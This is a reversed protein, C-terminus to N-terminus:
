AVRSTTPPEGLEPGAIAVPTFGIPASAPAAFGLTECYRKRWGFLMSRSINHWCTDVASVIHWIAAPYQWGGRRTLTSLSQGLDMPVAFNITSSRKGAINLFTGLYRLQMAEPAKALVQGTQLLKEPTLRDNPLTQECGATSQRCAGRRSAQRACLSIPTMVPCSRLVQEPWSRNSNSCGM